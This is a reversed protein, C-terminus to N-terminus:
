FDQLLQNLENQSVVPESENLQEPSRSNEISMRRRICNNKYVAIKESNGTTNLTATFGSNGRIGTLFQEFRWELDALKNLEHERDVLMRNDTLWKMLESLTKDIFDIDDLIKEPFLLSDADLCLTDSVMRLRVNLVFINDEINVHKNM